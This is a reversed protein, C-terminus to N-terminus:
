APTLFVADTGDAKLHAAVEKATTEMLAQPNQIYGYFSFCRPALEGVVGKSVLERFRDLPLMFNIDQDVHTHDYHNHTVMLQSALTDSAIERYSWDYGDNAIDFPQQDRRHVGGTTVLAMRCQSLPRSLPAWPTDVMEPTVALTRPYREAPDPVSVM